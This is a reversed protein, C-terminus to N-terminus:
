SNIKKRHTKRGEKSKYDDIFTEILSKETTPFFHFWRYGLNYLHEVLKRGLIPNMKSLTNKFVQRSCFSNCNRLIVKEGFYYDEVGWDKTLYKLYNKELDLHKLYQRRYDFIFFLSSLLGVFFLTTENKYLILGIFIPILIIMLFILYKYKSLIKSIRIINKWSKLLILIYGLFILVLLYNFNNDFYKQQILRSIILIGPSGTILMRMPIYRNTMFPILIIVIGIVGCSLKLMKIEGFLSIIMLLIGLLILFTPMRIIHVSKLINKM